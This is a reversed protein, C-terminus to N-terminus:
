LKEQSKSTNIYKTLQTHILGIYRVYVRVCAYVGCLYLNFNFISLQFNFIIQPPPLQVETTTPQAETSNYSNYSNYSNHSASVEIERIEGMDGIDGIDTSPLRDVTSGALADKISPVTTSPQAETSNYSNYSNYSNHSASVGIEGIEGM